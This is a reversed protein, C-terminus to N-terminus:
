SEWKTGKPTDMCQVQGSLEVPEMNVHHGSYMEVPGHSGGRHYNKKSDGSNRAHPTTSDAFEIWGHNTHGPPSMVQGKVGHKRRILVIGLITLCIVTLGGIVGGV